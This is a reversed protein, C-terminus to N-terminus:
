DLICAPELCAQYQNKGGKKALYMAMDAANIQDDLTSNDERAWYSMGISASIYCTIDGFYFPKALSEIIRNAIPECSSAERVAILFEDGALRSVLDRRAVCNVLRQAVAKLLQDGVAHGYQDNVAKFGDLDLFLIHQSAGVDHKEQLRRLAKSRNALGTLPDHNAQYNLRKLEIDITLDTFSVVFAEARGNESKLARVKLECPMVRGQQNKVDVHTKYHGTKLLRLKIAKTVEFPSFLELGKLANVEGFWQTASQNQTQVSLARNLVLIADQNQDFMLDLLKRRQESLTQETIDQLQILSSKETDMPNCSILYRKTKDVSRVELGKVTTHTDIAFLIREVKLMPEFHSMLLSRADSNSEMGKLEKAAIPNFYTVQHNSSVVLVCRQMADLASHIYRNKDEVRKLVQAVQSEREALSMTMENFCETLKGVEDQHYVPLTKRLVGVRSMHEVSRHLSLLPLSILSHLLKALAWACLSLLFVIVGLSLWMKRENILLNELSVWIELAGLKEDGLLVDNHRMVVNLHSCIVQRGQWHCGAPLDEISAITKDHQNIVVASIIDPDFSLNTLQEKATYADDFMLAAQLTNAVGQGLIDIRRELAKEQAVVVYQIALTGLGIVILTIMLWTPLMMKHRLPLRALRSRIM